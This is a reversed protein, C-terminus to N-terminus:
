PELCLRCKYIGKEFLRNEQGNVEAAIELIINIEQKRLNGKKLIWKRGSNLNYGYKTEAEM